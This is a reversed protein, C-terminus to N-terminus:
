KYLGRKKEIAALFREASTNLVLEESIESKLILEKARSIEGVYTSYHADSSALVPVGLEKCHKLLEMQNQSGKFRYSDPNLTQNNIEIITHTRAAAAVVAPIDVPFNADAPHGWIHMDRNEMAAIAARTHTAADVPVFTGRHFSAIVFEMEALLDEPLDLVGNEDMINCEVGKFVRVGNIVDPLIWQNQFNYIHPAGGLAPAHDSIGIYQLGISAAHIANETVTSYAHGSNVTHCHVDLVFEM